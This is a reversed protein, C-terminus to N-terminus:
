SQPNQPQCKAQLGTSSLCLSIHTLAPIFSVPRILGAGPRLKRVQLIVLSSPELTGELELKQFVVSKGPWPGLMQGDMRGMGHCKGM